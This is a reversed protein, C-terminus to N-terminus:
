VKEKSYYILRTTTKTRGESDFTTVGIQNLGEQLIVTQSFEGKTNAQTVFDKSPTSIVVSSLPNTKGAISHASDFTLVNDEPSDVELLLNMRTASLALVQSTKPQIDYRNLLFSLLFIYILGGTLLAAQSIFFTQTSIRVDFLSHSSKNKDKAVLWSQIKQSPATAM